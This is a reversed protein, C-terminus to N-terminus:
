RGCSSICKDLYTVDNGAIVYAIAHSMLKRRRPGIPKDWPGSVIPLLSKWGVKERSNRLRAGMRLFLMMSTGLELWPGRDRVGFRRVLDLGCDLVVVDGFELAYDCFMWVPWCVLPAEVLRESSCCVVEFGEFCIHFAERLRFVPGTSM